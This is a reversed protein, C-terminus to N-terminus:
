EKQNILDIENYLLRLRQPAIADDANAYLYSCYIVIEKNPYMARYRKAENLTEFAVSYYFDKCKVQICYIMINLRDTFNKPNM